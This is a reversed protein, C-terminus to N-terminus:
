SLVSVVITPAGASAARAASRIPHPRTIIAEGRDIM